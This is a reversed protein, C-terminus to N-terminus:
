HVLHVFEKGGGGAEGGEAGHGGRHHKGLDFGDAGPSRQDHPVIAASAPLLSESLHDAPVHIFHCHLNGSQDLVLGAALAPVFLGHRCPHHEVM